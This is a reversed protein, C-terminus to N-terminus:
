GGSKIKGTNRTASGVSPHSKEGAGKDGILNRDAHLTDNPLEVLTGSYKSGASRAGEQNKKKTAM